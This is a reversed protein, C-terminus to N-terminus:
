LHSDTDMRFKGSKRRRFKLVMFGAPNHMECL